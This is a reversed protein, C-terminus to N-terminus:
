SLDTMQRPFTSNVKAIAPDALGQCLLRIPFRSVPLSALRWGDAMYLPPFDSIKM